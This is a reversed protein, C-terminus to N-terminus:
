SEVWGQRNPQMLQWSIQESDKLENKPFSKSGMKSRENHLQISLKNNEIEIFMM